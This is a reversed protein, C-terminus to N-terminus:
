IILKYVSYPVAFRIIVLYEIISIVSQGSSVPNPYLSIPPNVALLQVLSESESLYTTDQTSPLPLTYLITKPLPVTLELEMNFKLRLTVTAYRLM